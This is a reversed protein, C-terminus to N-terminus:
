RMAEDDETLPQVPYGDMQAASQLAALWHLLETLEPNCERGMLARKHKAFTTWDTRDLVTQVNDLRSM